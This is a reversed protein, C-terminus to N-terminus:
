SYPRSHAPQVQRYIVGILDLRGEAVLPQSGIVDVQDDGRIGLADQADAVPSDAADLDRGALEGDIDGRGAQVRGRTIGTTSSAPVSLRAQRLTRHVQAVPPM